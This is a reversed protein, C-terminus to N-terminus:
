RRSGKYQPSRNSGQDQERRRNNAKKTQRRGSKSSAHDPDQKVQAIEKQVKPPTVKDFWGEPPDDVSDRQEIKGSEHVFFVNGVPKPKIQTESIVRAVREMIPPIPLKSKALADRVIWGFPEAQRLSSLDGPKDPQSSSNIQSESRSVAM